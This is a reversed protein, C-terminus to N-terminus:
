LTIQDSPLTKMHLASSYLWPFERGLINRKKQIIKSVASYHLGRAIAVQAQTYAPKLSASDRLARYETDGLGLFLPCFEALHGM